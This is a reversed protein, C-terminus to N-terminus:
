EEEAFIVDEQVLVKLNHPINFSDGLLSWIKDIDADPDNKDAYVDLQLIYRTGPCDEGESYYNDHDLVTRM